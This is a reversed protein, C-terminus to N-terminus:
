AVTDLGGGLIVHQGVGGADQTFVLDQIFRARAPISARFPRTFPSMDPRGRWDEEAAKLELGVLDEFM